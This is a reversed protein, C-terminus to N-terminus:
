WTLSPRVRPPQQPDCEDIEVIQYGYTNLVLTDGYHTIRQADQRYLHTHGHILLRPRIRDMFGLFAKFGRHCLDEGDHIGFPPAHTILIDLARGYRIRNLRLRPELAAAMLSMEFQRYQHEGERYRMSGELGAILLGRYNVVRRHINVCGQPEFQEQGQSTLMVSQAHNGFVHFLRKGLMTTVFELYDFPLDGCSLILDVDRFRDVIAPSYVLDVAVDSLTLLKM